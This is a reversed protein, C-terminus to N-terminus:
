SEAKRITQRVLDEFTPALEGVVKIRNNCLIEEHDIKVIPCDKNKRRAKIDFCVPDYDIDPGKAFQIYGAPILCQWLGSDSSIQEFFRSLDLGPPNGLLTYLQLEVEAWRYSLLLLEFLPPFRAPLKSYLEDLFRPDTKVKAPQWEAWGFEDIAGVAFEAVMPYATVPESMENLKSFTGVFKGLLADADKM